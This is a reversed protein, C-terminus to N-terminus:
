AEHIEEQGDYIGVFLIRAIKKPIVLIKVLVEEKKM